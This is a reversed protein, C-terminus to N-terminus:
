QSDKFSLRWFGVRVGLASRVLLVVQSWEPEGEAPVFSAKHKQLAKRLSGVVDTDQVGRVKFHKTWGLLFGQLTVALSGFAGVQVCM